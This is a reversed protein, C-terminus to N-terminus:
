WTAYFEILQPKAAVTQTDADTEVPETPQTPVATEVEGGGCSVAALLLLLSM